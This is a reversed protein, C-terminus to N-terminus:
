IEKINSHHALRKGLGILLSKLLMGSNILYVAYLGFLGTIPLRDTLPLRDRLDYNKGIKKLILM